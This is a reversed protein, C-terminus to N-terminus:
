ASQMRRCDDFIARLEEISKGDTQGDWFGIGAIHDSVFDWDAVLPATM